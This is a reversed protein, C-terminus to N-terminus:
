ISERETSSKNGIDKSYQVGDFHIKEAASYARMTAEKLDAGAATIYLATGGPTVIDSSEFVTNEHFVFVDEMKKIADLGTIKLGISGESAGKKSFLAICVSIKGGEKIQVDSLRGELASLILEGIDAKFGPMITQPELAGFGFQLESLYLSDKQVILDASIFGKFPMGDVNLAKNVPRMVKEIIDKEIEKTILPVPSYSGYVTSPSDTDQDPMGRYKYVSALPLITKNDAITVFAIREGKLHEEIIIRNGSDGYMNEKMICKLIDAVDEITSALFVGKDGPYGNTKIVLPLGKMQVYDQGLLHSSFAQYEATPIRHRKMFNKSSVRSSGLSLSGRSLGFINCGHREFVDVIDQALSTESCVITLDIWEYRVFDVLANVNHPNIDICEAIGAIGANGPSCYIKTIHKSQSLKWILAHEKGGGGIVLIKV